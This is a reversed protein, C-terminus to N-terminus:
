NLKTNQYYTNNTTLTQSFIKCTKKMHMILIFYPKVKSTILCHGSSSSGLFTLKFTKKSPICLLTFYATLYKTLQLFFGYLHTCLLYFLIKKNHYSLHIPPIVAESRSQQLFPAVPQSTELSIIYLQTQPKNKIHTDTTTNNQKIGGM